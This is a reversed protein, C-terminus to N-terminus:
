IWRRVRKKYQVWADGFRNELQKEERRIMLDTPILGMLTLAIGGPTGLVLAAGLFIFLNGGLYLPNRSFRYPGDTILANQPELVIVKMRREYFHFTAWVRLLFGAALLIVGAIIAAALHFRAFGLLMDIAAGLLGVGFGVFVVGANHAISKLLSSSM